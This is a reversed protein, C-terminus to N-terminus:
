LKRGLLQYLTTRTAKLQYIGIKSILAQLGNSMLENKDNCLQGSEQPALGLQSLACVHESSTLNTVNTFQLTSSVEASREYTSFAVDSGDPFAIWLM